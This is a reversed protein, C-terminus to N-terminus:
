HLDLAHLQRIDKSLLLQCMKITAILIQLAIKKECEM